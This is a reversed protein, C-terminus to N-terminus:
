RIVGMMILDIHQSGPTRAAQQPSLALFAQRVASPNSVAAVTAGLGVAGVLGVIRARQITREAEPAFTRQRNASDELAAQVAALRRATDSRIANARDRMSSALQPNRVMGASGTAHLDALREIALPDNQNASLQLLNIAERTDSQVGTGDLLAVGLATRAELYVGAGQRLFAVGRAPDPEGGSSGMLMLGAFAACRNDGLEGCLTFLRRSESFDQPVEIYYRIGDPATGHRFGFFHDLALRFTAERDGQAASIADSRRHSILQDEPSACANLLLVIITLGYM